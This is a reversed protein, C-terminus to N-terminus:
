MFTPADRTWSGTGSAGVKMYVGNYAATADGIVWAITNAVRALDAFLSARSTYILGGTSIFANIISEVWAGWARIDSKKPKQRGSSPVGDTVYDRWIQAATQMLGM